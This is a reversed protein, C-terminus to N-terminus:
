QGSFRNRRDRKRRCARLFFMGGAGFMLGAAMMVYAHQSYGAKLVAVSPDDPDYYVAVSGGIPYRDVVAQAKSQEGGYPSGFAIRDATFGKGFVAYQYQIRPYYTAETQNERRREVKHIASHTIIGTTSPWGNSERSRKLEYLGWGAVVLGVAFMCLTLFGMGRNVKSRGGAGKHLPVSSKTAPM